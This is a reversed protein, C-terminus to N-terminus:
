RWQFFGIAELDAKLQTKQTENLTPQPPRYPGVPLGILEMIAKGVGAGYVGGMLVVVNQIRRQWELATALDSQSIATLLQNAARGVYNYTSGVAGDAGLSLATMVIEDRGFLMTFPGHGTGNKGFHACRSFDFLDYDTFKVGALTPILGQAAALFDHVVVTVGTMSPIHYYFFPLKPAAAAATQCWAVLGPIGSPKFFTPPMMAIGHAGIKEAHAALTVVDMISEAGVHVIVKFTPYASVTADVWAQALAMRETTTMTLSEGTTGCVLAANVGQDVLGNLLSPVVSVNLSYDTNFPSFPAAVLGSLTPTFANTQALLTAMAVLLMM